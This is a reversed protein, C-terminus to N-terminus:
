AKRNVSNGTRSIRKRQQQQQQLQQLFADLDDAHYVVHARQFRTSGEVTAFAPGRGYHRAQYLTGPKLGLFAAAESTTLWTPGMATTHNATVPGGPRIANAAKALVAAVM